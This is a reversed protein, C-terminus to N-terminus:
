DEIVQGNVIVGLREYLLRDKAALLGRGSGQVLVCSGELIVRPTENTSMFLLVPMQPSAMSCNVIPQNYPNVGTMATFSPVSLGLALQFRAYDVLPLDEPTTNADAVLALQQAGTLLPAVGPDVDLYTVLAPLHQLEVENGDIKLAYVSGGGALTKVYLEHDGYEMRDQVTPNYLMAAFIGGIMTLVIFLSFAFVTRKRRREKALHEQHRRNM